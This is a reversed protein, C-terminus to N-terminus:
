QNWAGLVRRKATEKVIVAPTEVMHLMRLAAKLTKHESWAWFDKNRLEKKFVILYRVREKDM